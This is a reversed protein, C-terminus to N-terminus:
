ADWVLSTGRQGLLQAEETARRFNEPDLEFSDVRPKGMVPECLGRAEIDPTSNGSKRPSQTEAPEQVEEPEQEQEPRDPM